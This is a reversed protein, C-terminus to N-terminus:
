EETVDSRRVYIDGDLEFAELDGDDVRKLLESPLVDVARAADVLRILDFDDM